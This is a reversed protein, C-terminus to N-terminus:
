EYPKFFLGLAQMKEKVEKLSKKGLNKVHMMDEETRQTLEAVTSIGARKLCNYSRVSLDLDEIMKTEAKQGETVPPQEVLFNNELHLDGLEIIPELYDGLLEAAEQIARSPLITGNTTLDLHVKDYKIDQGVRAPESLYEASRIPTFMADIPTISDDLQYEEKNEAESQYGVGKALYVDLELTEGEKLHAIPQEPELVEVGEPCILDGATILVPGNKKSIQLKQLDGSDSAIKLDKINLILGEVDEEIPAFQNTKRDLGEASIGVIGTGPLNSNMMQTLTNGITTGLGRELPTFVFKGENQTEAVEKQFLAREFEQM